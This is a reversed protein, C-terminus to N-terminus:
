PRNGKSDTVATPWGSATEAPARGGSRASREGATRPWVVTMSAGGAPSEGVTWRGGTARVIADGIALGLGAGGPTTSARHFRDFVHAREEPPIGPGSDEVSLRVSTSSASVIVRVEGGEGSYRCANDLLVGLLRDLWDPPATVLPEVPGNVAGSIRQSRREAVSRFREVAGGALIGLDVLEADPPDPTADFRALWLLDDVLRRLKKSEAEVRVFSTRYSEAERERSLALTAEAEIVSLPTRLEHSADATFELQRQRAREIPAAVRRGVTLAGFFVLLLLVPGVILETLILTDRAQNAPATSQGVVVWGNVIGATSELLIPGGVIRVESGSLSVTQPDSAHRYSAPLDPANRTGLAPQIDGSPDVVWAVLPAGYRGGFPSGFGSVGQAPAGPSFPRGYAQMSAVGSRIRTDVGADLYHSAIVTVVLTLVLYVTAVGATTRLAVQTPVTQAWRRTADVATGVRTSM